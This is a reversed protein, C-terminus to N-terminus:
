QGGRQGKCVLLGALGCGLLLCTAPEPITSIANTDLTVAGQRALARGPMIGSGTGLGISALALINGAFDTDSGLTASSGVQWFINRDGGNVVLVASGSGTTLTSGIQFVYRADPDGLGDLTLSGTLQASSLFRYVGPNLTLGGLDQGSLDQDFAMGALSDYAVTVDEQAQHAVADGAHITGNVIGPPFGTIALGPWVGLDGTVVTPGTNTVTSGGLVAFSEASGLLDAKAQPEASGLTVMALLALELKM